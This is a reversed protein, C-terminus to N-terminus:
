LNDKFSHSIRLCGGISLKSLHLTKFVLVGIVTRSCWFKVSRKNSRESYCNENWLKLSVNQCFVRGSFFSSQKVFAFPWQMNHIFSCMHWILRLEKFSHINLISKFYSFVRIWFSKWISISIFKLFRSLFFRSVPMPEFVFSKLFCCTEFLYKAWAWDQGM